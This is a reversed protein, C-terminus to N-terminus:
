QVVRFQFMPSGYKMFLTVWLPVVMETGRATRLDGLDIIEQWGFSQLLEVVQAKAAADDGSVFVTHAGGAVLQPNVMLNANMTNLTKVVRAAPFARQIQEALSDTSSVFLSPPMGQSFDLPNSIDILVKGQLNAAGALELAALSGSGATANVIMDGHAAAEAFSGARAGQGAGALWEALKNVDRTGVVVEHGLALLKGSIAQGVMGSGLVGFKM